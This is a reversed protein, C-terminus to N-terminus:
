ALKLPVCIETLLEDPAVDMPSNLYVEYAAVDALDKGSEPLWSGYLYDYASKLGSYPGKFVLVACEGAPITLAELGEPTQMTPPVAVGAFSRLDAEAVSNPDDCYVAVMGQVQPWLNRAGLITGLKEYTAGISPYSGRHPLGILQKEDQQKIDVDFMTWIGKKLDLSFAESQGNVRFRQPTTGFRERFARAMVDTGSFGADKAITDLSLDSQRLLVSVHYLRVRRVVQACTEGTMARFVRHFHFRSMAAVDALEDLSLDGSLNAHIHEVVRLLRKEYSQHGM